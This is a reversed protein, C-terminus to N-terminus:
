SGDAVEDQQVRLFGGRREAPPRVDPPMTEAGGGGHSGGYDKRRRRPPRFVGQEPSQTGAPVPTLGPSSSCYDGAGADKGVREALRRFLEEREDLVAKLENLAKRLSADPRQQRPRYLKAM